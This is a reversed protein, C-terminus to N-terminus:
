KVEKTTGPEPTSVGTASSPANPMRVGCWSIRISCLESLIHRMLAVLGSRVPTSDAQSSQNPTPKQSEEERILGSINRNESADELLTIQVPANGHRRAHIQLAMLDSDTMDIGWVPHRVMDSCSVAAENKREVDNTM